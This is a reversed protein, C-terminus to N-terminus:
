AINNLKIYLMLSSLLERNTPKSSAFKPGFYKEREEVSLSDFACQTAHRIAREVRLPTTKMEIAVTPYLGKVIRKLLSADQLIMKLGLVLCNYGKHNPNFHMKLLLAEISRSTNSEQVFSFQGMTDLMNALDELNYGAQHLTIFMKRTKEM